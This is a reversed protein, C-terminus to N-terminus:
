KEKEEEQLERRLADEILKALTISKKLAVIKARQWIDFSLKITTQAFRAGAKTLEEAGKALDEKKKKKM